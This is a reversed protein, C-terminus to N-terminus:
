PLSFGSRPLPRAKQFLFDLPLTNDSYKALLSSILRTFFDKRNQTKNNLRPAQECADTTAVGVEM